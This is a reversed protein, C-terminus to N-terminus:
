ENGLSLDGYPEFVTSIYMQRGKALYRDIKKYVGAFKESPPSKREAAKIKQRLRTLAANDAAIAWLDAAMALHDLWDGHWGKVLDSEEPQDLWAGKLGKAQERDSIAELLRAGDGAVPDTFSLSGILDRLATPEIGDLSQIAAARAAEVNGNSMYARSLSAIADSGMEAALDSAWAFAAEASTRDGLHDLLIGISALYRIRDLRLQDGAPTDSRIAADPVIEAHVAKNMDAVVTRDKTALRAVFIPLNENMFDLSPWKKGDIRNAFRTAFAFIRNAAAQNGNRWLTRAADCWNEVDRACGGYECSLNNVAARRDVEKLIDLAKDSPVAQRALPRIGDTSAGKLNLQELAGAIRQLGSSWLKTLESNAAISETNTIRGKEAAKSYALFQERQKAPMRTLLASPLMKPKPGDGLTVLRDFDRQSWQINARTMAYRWGAQVFAGRNVPVVSLGAQKLTELMKQEASFNTVSCAAAAHEAWAVVRQRINKSYKDSDPLRFIVPDAASYDLNVFKAIKELELNQAALLPEEVAAMLREGVTKMTDLDGPYNQIANSSVIAKFDRFLQVHPVGGVFRQFFHAPETMAHGVSFLQFFGGYGVAIWTDGSMQDARQLDYYLESKIFANFHAPDRFVFPMSILSVASVSVDSGFDITRQSLDIVIQPPQAMASRERYDGVMVKIGPMGLRSVSDRLAQACATSAALGTPYEILAITEAKVATAAFVFVALLAKYVAFRPKM